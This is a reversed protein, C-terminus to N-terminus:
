TYRSRLDFGHETRLINESIAMLDPNQATLGAAPTLGINYIEELPAASAQGSVKTFNGLEHGGGATFAGEGRMFRDAHGLEHGLIISDPPVVQNEQGLANVKWVASTPAGGMTTTNIFVNVDNGVGPGGPSRSIRGMVNRVSERFFLFRRRRVPEVRNSALTSRITASFPSNIIRQVLALSQPRNAPAQVPGGAITIERTTGAAVYNLAPAANGILNGLANQITTLFTNPSAEVYFRGQIVGGTDSRSAESNDDLDSQGSANGASTKAQVPPQRNM